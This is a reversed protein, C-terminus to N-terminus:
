DSWRLKSVAHVYVVRIHCGWYDPLEQGTEFIAQGGWIWIYLEFHWLNYNPLRDFYIKNLLHQLKWQQLLRGHFKCTICM